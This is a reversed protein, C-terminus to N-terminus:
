GDILRAPAAAQLVGDECKRCVYKPRVTVLVSFQASVIDLRKSRDAGICRLQRQYCPCTKDDIDVILEVRPL